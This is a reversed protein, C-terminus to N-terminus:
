NKDPVSAIRSRQLSIANLVVSISSLAMAAGAVMPNLFGFAALPIGLINYGFAFGLNQKVKKFTAKALDVTHVVGRIHSRMLGVSASEMAVDTGSGIAFGVDAAALAPADNVGDGVMGVVKGAAKADRVRDAKEAPLVEAEFLDVGLANAVEEGVKERDGTLLIVEIGRQQLAKVAERSGEKIEDSLTFYGLLEDKTGLAVVMGVEEALAQDLLTQDVGQQALYTTSGLFYVQESFEGQVGRGPVSLFQDMPLSVIQQRRLADAVAGSAPHESAEALAKAIPWFREDLSIRSVKIIGETVTNTKDVLLREIKQAKELAAADKILVGMEAGKACAVIIVMPTALGLACPCAIVLVAVANIIGEGGMGAIWWWLVWTLLAVVLVIPVFVASIKDALREIPAKSGQAERVLRVIHGLATEEGVKTAKAVLSGHKNITGAYVPSELQKEVVLSEGTLMSEDIVSAGEVVVGDVPVRDGPRVRFLAGLSVEVTPIEKWEEGEKVWAMKPQLSLLAKMGGRAKDTARQELLRGILIFSILVSSTEFYLGRGPEFFVVYLSFFYAASTGLAVLADMGVSARKLGQYAGLYFVYGSFFQVITALIGQILPPVPVGFMQLVLPISLLAAVVTRIVLWRSTSKDDCAACHNEM